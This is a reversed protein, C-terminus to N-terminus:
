ELPWSNRERRSAGILIQRVRVGEDVLALSTTGPTYRAIVSTATDLYRSEPNLVSTPQPTQRLCCVHQALARTDALLKASRPARLASESVGAPLAVRLRTAKWFRALGAM